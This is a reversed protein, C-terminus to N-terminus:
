KLSVGELYLVQGAADTNKYGVASGECYVAGIFGKFGVGAAKLLRGGFSLELKDEVQLAHTMVITKAAPVYTAGAALSAAYSYHTFQPYDDLAEGISGVQTIATILVDWVDVAKIAPSTARM